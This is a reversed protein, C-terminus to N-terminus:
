PQPTLDGLQAVSAPDDPNLGSRMITAWRRHSPHDQWGVPNLQTENAGLRRTQGDQSAMFILYSSPPLKPYIDLVTAGTYIFTIQHLPDFFIFTHLQGAGCHPCVPAAKLAALDRAWVATERKCFACAFCHKRNSKLTEGLKYTLPGFQTGVKLM